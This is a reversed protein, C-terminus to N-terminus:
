LDLNLSLKIVINKVLDPNQYAGYRYFFGTGLGTKLGATNLVLIDNMFLGSELYGRNLTNFGILQHDEENKLDGIGFNHQMELSPFHRLFSFYLPGFNHSYFLYFYRDSLFENYGMTEFTNHFVISFNRLGGRTVFLKHYPISRDIFGTNIQFSSRGFGLIDKQYNLRIEYKNYTFDSGFDSLGKQWNFFFVPYPTNKIVLERGNRVRKEGLAFRFGISIDAYDYSAGTDAQFAYDYTPNLNSFALGVRSQLYKVVKFNSEIGLAIEDDMISVGYRRLLESRFMPAEQLSIQNVGSEFVDRRGYVQIWNWYNKDLYIRELAGFKVREDRFGYAVYASIKNKESFSEKTSLGIGLRLGEHNNFALVEPTNIQFKGLPINGEYIEKGFTLGQYINQLQPNVHYFEETNEVLSDSKFSISDKELSENKSYDKIIEDYKKEGLDYKFKYNTYNESSQLKIQTSYSQIGTLNQTLSTSKIVNLGEFSQYDASIRIKSDTDVAKEAWLARINNTSLDYYIFGRLKNAEKRIKPSFQILVIKSDEVNITDSIKFLYRKQTEGILPNPYKIAAIRWYDNYISLDYIAKGGTFEVKNEIGISKKFQIREELNFRNKYEILDKNQNYILYHDKPYHNLRKGIIGLYSNFNRKFRRIDNSKLIDISNRNFQLNKINRYNKNQMSNQWSKIMQLALDDNKKIPLFVTFAILRIDIILSDAKVRYELPKHFPAKFILKKIGSQAKINFHGLGDSLVSISDNIEIECFPVPDGYIGDKINGSINNQSFLFHYVGTILVVTFILRKGM